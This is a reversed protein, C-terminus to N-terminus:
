ITKWFRGPIIGYRGPFETYRRRRAVDGSFDFSNYSQHLLDATLPFDRQILHEDSIRTHSGHNNALAQPSWDVSHWRRLRNLAIDVDMSNLHFLYLDPDLTTPQRCEHFGETWDVPVSAVLPKCYRAAFRVYRRQMLIPYNFDIPAEWGRVQLVNLGVPSTCVPPRQSVYDLLGQFKAPDPVIFEDADSFIVVDYSQLLRAQYERVFATRDVEDFKGDRPVAIRMGPALQATGGDTSGHDLVFINDHGLANGYYRCWLPLLLGENYVMTFAAVRM